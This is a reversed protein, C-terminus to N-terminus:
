KNFAKKIGSFNLKETTPNVQAFVEVGQQDLKQACAFEDETMKVQPLVAVADQYHIGATGVNVNKLGEVSEKLTLADRVNETVVFIKKNAYKPNNLIAIASKLDKIGLTVGAPKALKMTMKSMADNAAHDNAVLLIDPHLQNTWSVAVLGHVLRDDARVLSIM